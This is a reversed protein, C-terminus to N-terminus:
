RAPATKKGSSTAASIAAISEVSRQRLATSSVGETRPFIILRDESIQNSNDDGHVLLDINHEDLIAETIMWPTAVVESVYRISLLIEKRAEFPLEPKYYKKALVEEDTTLGVVVDGHASATQLLRVHGHHLLTASMDVMIRKTM